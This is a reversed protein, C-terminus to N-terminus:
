SKKYKGFCDACLIKTDTKGKYLKVDCLHCNCDDCHSNKYVKKEQQQIALYEPLKDGKIAM